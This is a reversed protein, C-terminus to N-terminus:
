ARPVQGLAINSVGGDVVIDQGNIYDARDSALFATVNALDAPDAVRGSPILRRRAAASFAASRQSEAGRYYYLPTPRKGNLRM